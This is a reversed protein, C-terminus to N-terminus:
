KRERNDCKNVANMLELITRCIAFPLRSCKEFCLDPEHFTENYFRAHILFCMSTICVMM